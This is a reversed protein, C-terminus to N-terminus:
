IIRRITRLNHSYGNIENKFIGHHDLSDIRVRGSAHIILGKSIIMGVHSIRGNGSDFFALDGPVAEDIFDIMKGENSQDAADRAIPISFIKYVLQTFGSCDLGSPIRGGWIYPSNIFKMAIESLSDNTSIYNKGFDPITRYINRGISFVKEEFDPNFIECGPELVIKTNDSKTCLLPRNLVHGCSIDEDASCQLHDVDIWGHYNDFSTKIKQWNGSSDAVAYKEGFLIQSLMESKHSPASRLPVFVNECIYREM